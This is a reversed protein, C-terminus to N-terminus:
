IKALSTSEVWYIKSSLAIPALDSLWLSVRTRRARKQRTSRCLDAAFIFLPFHIIKRQIKTRQEKDKVPSPPAPLSRSSRSLRLPLCPSSVRDPILVSHGAGAALIKFRIVFSHWKQQSITCNYPRTVRKNPFAVSRFAHESPSDDPRRRSSFM